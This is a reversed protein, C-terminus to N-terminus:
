RRGFDKHVSLYLACDRNKGPQRYDGSYRLLASGTLRRGTASKRSTAPFGTALDDLRSRLKERFDAM